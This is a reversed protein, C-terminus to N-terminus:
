GLDIQVAEDVDEVIRKIAPLAATPDCISAGECDYGMAALLTAQAEYLPVAVALLILLM